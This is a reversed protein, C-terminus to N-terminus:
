AGTPACAVFQDFFAWLETIAGSLCSTVDAGPESDAGM